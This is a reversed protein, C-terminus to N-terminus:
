KKGGTPGTLWGALILLVVVLATGVGAFFAAVMIAGIIKTIIIAGITLVAMTTAATMLKRRTLNKM